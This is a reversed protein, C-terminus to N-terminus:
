KRVVWATSPAQVLGKSDKIFRVSIQEGKYYITRLYVNLKEHKESGEKLAKAILPSVNSWSPKKFFENWDHKQKLIPTITVYELNIISDFESYDVNNSVLEINELVSDLEEDKYVYGDVEISSDDVIVNNDSYSHEFSYEIDLAHILTSSFNFFMVLSLAFFLIRKKM